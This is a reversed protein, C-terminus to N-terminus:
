PYKATTGIAATDLSSSESALFCHGKNDTDQFLMDTVRRPVGSKTRESGPM